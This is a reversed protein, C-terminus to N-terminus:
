HCSICIDKHAVYTGCFHNKFIMKFLIKGPLGRCYFVSIVNSCVVEVTMILGEM